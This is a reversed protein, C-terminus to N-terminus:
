RWFRPFRLLRIASEESRIYARHRRHLEPRIGFVVWPYTNDIGQVGRGKWYVEANEGSLVLLGAAGLWEASDIHSDHWVEFLVQGDLGYIRLSRRSFLHSFAVVLEPGPCEPFIDEIGLLYHPVFEKGSFGSRDTPPVESSRVRDKWPLNARKLLRVPPIV